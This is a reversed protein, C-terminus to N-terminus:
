AFVEIKSILFTQDLVFGTETTNIVTNAGSKYFGQTSGTNAAYALTTTSNFFFAVVFNKTKDLAYVIEDSVTVSGSAGTVSASGGNWTLAVQTGDYNYTNGAAAGAGMASSSISYGAGANSGNITVRVKSGSVLLDSSQIVQRIGYASFGSEDSGLVKSYTTQWSGGGGGGSGSIGRARAIIQPSFLM